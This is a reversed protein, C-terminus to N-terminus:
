PKWAYRRKRRAGGRYAPDEAPVAIEDIFGAGLREIIRLSPENSPDTTLIVQEYHHNILPILAKCAHYSFRNGRHSDLIGYGIHGACMRVHNTDGVRFNIHGVVVENENVIKFHYFPVLEGGPEVSVIKEFRLHVPGSRLDLPADDRLKV